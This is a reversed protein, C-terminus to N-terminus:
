QWGRGMILILGSLVVVMDMVMVIILVMCGRKVVPRQREDCIQLRKSHLLVSLFTVNSVENERAKVISM